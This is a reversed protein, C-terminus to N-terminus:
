VRAALWSLARSLASPQHDRRFQHSEAPDVTGAKLFLQGSEDRPPPRGAARRHWVCLDPDLGLLLTRLAQASGPRLEPDKELCQGVIQVLPGDLPVGDATPRRPREKIHAVAWGAPTTEDFLSHGSLMEYLLIGVGYVDSCPTAEGHLLQEPSAYRPSGIFTGTRTSEVHDVVKAIGFDVLTVHGEGSLLVNSPKLDRHVVGHAHAYQLAELVQAAIAIARGPAMAGGEDLLAKLSRGEILEMVLYLDGRTTSGFDWVDIINPHRLSATTRAEIWFRRVVEQDHLHKPRIIKVAAPRGLTIQTARLVAGMGGAALPGEIRYRGDLVIGSYRQSRRRQSTSGGAM